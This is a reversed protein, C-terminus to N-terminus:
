YGVPPDSRGNSAIPHRGFGLRANIADSKLSSSPWGGTPSMLSVRRKMWGPSCAGIRQELMTRQLKFSVGDM